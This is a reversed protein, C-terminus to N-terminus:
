VGWMEVRTAMESGERPERVSARRMSLFDSLTGQEKSGMEEMEAATLCRPKEMTLWRTRRWPRELRRRVRLRVNRSEWEDKHFVWGFIIKGVYGRLRVQTRKL